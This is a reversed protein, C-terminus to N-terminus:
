LVVSSKWNSLFLFKIILGLSECSWGVSSEEIILREKLCGEGLEYSERYEREM